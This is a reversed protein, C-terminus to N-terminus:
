SQSARGRTLNRQTEESPFTMKVYVTEKDPPLYVTDFRQIRMDWRAVVLYHGPSLGEANVKGSEDTTYVRTPPPPPFTIESGDPLVVTGDGCGIKSGSPVVHVQQRAAPGGPTAVFDDPFRIATIRVSIGKVPEDSSDSVVVHIQLIAVTFCVCM